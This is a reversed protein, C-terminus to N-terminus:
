STKRARIAGILFLRYLKIIGSCAHRLIGDLLWASAPGGIRIRGQALSFQDICGGAGKQQAAICTRAHIM